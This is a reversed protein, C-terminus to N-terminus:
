ELPGRLRVRARLLAAQLRVHPDNSLRVAADALREAHAPAADIEAQGSATLLIHRLAELETMELDLAASLQRNRTAGPELGEAVTLRQEVTALAETWGDLRTLSDARSAPRSQVLAIGDAHGEEERALSTWLACLVPDTRSSAAYARYVASAREELRRCRDLMEDFRMVDRTMCPSQWPM